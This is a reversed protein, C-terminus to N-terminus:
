QVGALLLALAFVPAAATLSDIRDMVGGHGPLLNSSDKLGSHRKVMSEVLDGLVSVMVTALSAVVTLLLGAVTAGTYVSVAVAILTVVALGGYVGEWSKGPSVKVALKRKGFRRGSFYAGVDAGWILAFLYLIYWSSYEFQKLQNFGVFAPLLILLGMVLRMPTSGWQAASEPYGFVWRLVGIWWLAGVILVWHFPIQWCIYMLLLMVAAYGIRGGQAEIGSLHAWEWAGLAIVFAIFFGFGVPPLFFVCGIAVPALIAATLIRPKLDSAPKAPAAATSPTEQSKGPETPTNM